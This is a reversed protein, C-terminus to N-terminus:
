LFTILIEEGVAIGLVARDGVTGHLVLIAILSVVFSYRHVVTSFSVSYKSDGVVCSTPVILEAQDAAVFILINRCLNVKFLLTAVM